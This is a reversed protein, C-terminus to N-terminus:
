GLKFYAPVCKHFIHKDLVLVQIIQSKPHLHDVTQQQLAMTCELLYDLIFKKASKQKDLM